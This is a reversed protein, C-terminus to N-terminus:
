VKAMKLKLGIKALLTLLLTMSARKTPLLGLFIARFVLGAPKNVVDAVIEGHKNFVSPGHLLRRSFSFLIAIKNMSLISWFVLLSLIIIVIDQYGFHHLKERWGGDHIVNIYVSSLARFIFQHWQTQTHVTTFFCGAPLCNRDIQWQEWLFAM